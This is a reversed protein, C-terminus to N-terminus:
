LVYQIGLQGLRVAGAVSLDRDRVLIPARGALRQLEEFLAATTWGDIPGDLIVADCASRSLMAFAEGPYLFHVNWTEPPPVGDASDSIWIIEYPMKSSM